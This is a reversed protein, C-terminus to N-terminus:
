FGTAWLATTWSADASSSPFEHQGNGLSSFDFTGTQTLDGFDFGFSPSSLAPESMVTPHSISSTPRKPQNSPSKLSPQTSMTGYDCLSYLRETDEPSLSIAYGSTDLLQTYLISDESFQSLSTAQKPSYTFSRLNSQGVMTAANKWYKSKAELHALNGALGASSKVRVQEDESYQFLANITGTVTSCYSFITASVNFGAQKANFLTWTLEQAHEWCNEIAKAFFKNPTRKGSAEIRRRLLFPHQLLCYCMHYMIYFFLFSETLPEMGSHQSFPGGALLNQIDRFSQFYTDFRTLQTCIIQYESTHDWPPEENAESPRFIYTAAQSLISTVAVVHAISDLGAEHLDDLGKVTQLTPVDETMLAQFARESCPLRLQCTKDQFLCPRGRGCTAMKDLLYISWLTRRREEKIHPPLDDPPEVLM